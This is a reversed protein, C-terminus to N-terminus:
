NPDVPYWFAKHRTYGDRNQVTRAPGYDCLTHEQECEQQTAYMPGPDRNSAWWWFGALVVLAILVGRYWRLKEEATAAPRVTV